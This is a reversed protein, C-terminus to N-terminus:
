KQKKIKSLSRKLETNEKKLLELEAALEAVAKYLPTVMKAYDVSWMTSDHDPKNVFEPAVEYLDQAIFGTENKKSDTRDYTKALNGIRQVKNLDFELPKINTKLRRDSTSTWSVATATGTNNFTYRDAGGNYFRLETSGSPLYMDWESATGGTRRLKVQAQGTSTNHIDVISNFAASNVNVTGASVGGVNLTGTPSLDMTQTFAGGVAVEGWVFGGPGGGKQNMFFSRGSGGDSNWGIYAGQNDITSTGLNVAGGNSQLRGSVNLSGGQTLTMRDQSNVNDYWRLDSSGTPTYNIWDSVTGGTRNFRLATEGTSTNRLTLDASTASQFLGNGLAHFTATPNVGLGLRGTSTLRMKETAAAGNTMNSFVFDFDESTTTVDSAVASFVAGVENNNNSTEVEFEIGTGIGPDIGTASSSEKTLRLAPTNTSLADIQFTNLTRQPSSTGLGLRGTSTLRMKENAPSGNTMNNFVLDFDESLNVVDTAIANISAGNEAGSANVISTFLLGVGIGTSPTGSTSNQINFHVPSNTFGSGVYAFRSFAVNLGGITSSSTSLFSSNSLSTSGGTLTIPGTGKTAFSLGVDTLSGDATFQRTSGATSSNGLTLDGLLNSFLSSSVGGGAGNSKVIENNIASNSAPVSAWTGDGRWYTSASAGTGGNLNTVPLNGTVHTSLGIKGWSPAVGVGGSLLANGTAVGALRTLASTTSAYLIDGVAYTANGTGGNAAALTGSFAISPNGTGGDGNTVTINTGGTISRQVWTPTTASKVAFGTSALGALGSLDADFAQVNTGIALGLNSRATGADTAGTGGLTLPITSLSVNLGTKVLPSTFNLIESGKPLSYRVGGIQYRINPTGVNDLWFKGDVIAGVQTSDRSIYVQASASLTFLLLLPLLRKM